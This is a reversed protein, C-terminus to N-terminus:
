PRGGRRDPRFFDGETLDILYPESFGRLRILATGDGNLEIRGEYETRLTDTGNSRMSTTRFHIAGSLAESLNRDNVNTRRIQVDDFHYHARYTRTVVNQAGQFDFFGRSFTNGRVQIAGQERGFGAFFLSDTRQFGTRHQPTQIMGNKFGVFAISGLRDQNRRPYFLLRGLNDRYVYNYEAALTKNVRGDNLNRNFRVTHIGTQFNVQVQINSDDGRNPPGQQTSPTKYAAETANIGGQSLTGTADYLSSVLGDPKASLSQAVENVVALAEEDMERLSEEPKTVCATLSLFLASYVLFKKM